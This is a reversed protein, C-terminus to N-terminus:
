NTGPAYFWDWGLPGPPLAEFRDETEQWRARSGDPFEVCTLTIADFARFHLLARHLDRIKTMTPPGAFIPNVHDAFRAAHFDLTGSGSTM